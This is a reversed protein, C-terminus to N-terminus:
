RRFQVGSLFWNQDYAFVPDRSGADQTGGEVFWRLRRSFTREYRGLLRRVDTARILEPEDPVTATDYDLRRWSAHFRVRSRPTLDRDVSAYASLSGYDYYGAFTDNRDDSRLSLRVFWRTTPRVLFTVRYQAYRYKSTTGPVAFGAADLAPRADYDLDTLAVSFGMGVMRNLQVSLGPEVTLSRHDLPYLDTNRTYDNAYDSREWATDLFFRLRDNQRWSANVFAGYSDYDFRDPILVTAGPTSISDVEYVEGTARDTFTSRGLGYFGGAALALRHTLGRPSYGIGARLNGSAWDADSVSSEYLRAQAVGNAFLAVSPSVVRSYGADLALQTFLGNPGDGSVRLPNSDHGLLATFGYDLDSQAAGAGSASVLVLVAALCVGRQM